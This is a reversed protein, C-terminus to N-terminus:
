LAGAAAAAGDAEEDEILVVSWLAGAAELVVVPLLAASWDAALV